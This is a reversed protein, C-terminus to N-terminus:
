SCLRLQYARREAAGGTRREARAGHAAHAAHASAGELEVGRLDHPQARSTAASDRGRRPLPITPACPQIRLRRRHVRDHWFGVALDGPQRFVLDVAMHTARAQAYQRRVAFRGPLCSDPALPCVRMARHTPPPTPASVGPCHWCCAASAVCCCASACPSALDSRAGVQSVPSILGMVAYAMVSQMHFFVRCLRGPLACRLASVPSPFRSSHLSPNLPPDRVAADMTAPQIWHLPHRGREPSQLTAGPLLPHCLSWPAAHRSLAHCRAVSARSASRWLTAHLVRCRVRQDAPMHGAGHQICAGCAVPRRRSLLAHAATPVRARRSLHLVPPQRLQLPDFAAQVDAHAHQPLARACPPAHVVAMFPITHDPHHLVLRSARRRPRREDQESKPSYM